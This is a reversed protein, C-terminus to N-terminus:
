FLSLDEEEDDKHGDYDNGNNSVSEAGLPEAQICTKNVDEEDEPCFTKGYDLYWCRAKLHTVSWGHLLAVTYICHLSSKLLWTSLYLPLAAKEIAGLPQPERSFYKSSFHLCHADYHLQILAHSGLLCFYRFIVHMAALDTYKHKGFAKTKLYADKGKFFGLFRHEWIHIQWDEIYKELPRPHGICEMDLQLGDEM